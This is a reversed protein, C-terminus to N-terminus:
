QYDKQTFGHRSDTLEKANDNLHIVVVVQRWMKMCLITLMLCNIFDLSQINRAAAKGPASM